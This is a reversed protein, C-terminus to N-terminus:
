FSIKFSFFALFGKCVIEHSVFLSRIFFQFCCSLQEGLFRAPIVTVIRTWFLFSYFVVACCGRICYGSWFFFFCQICKKYWVYIASVYILSSLLSLRDIIDPSTDPQWGKSWVHIHYTVRQSLLLMASAFLKIESLFSSQCLRWGCCWWHWDGVGIWELEVLGMDGMVYWSAQQYRWWGKINLTLLLAPTKLPSPIFVNCTSPYPSTSSFFRHMQWTLNWNSNMQLISFMVKTSVFSPVTAEGICAAMYGDVETEFATPYINMFCSMMDIQCILRILLIVALPILPFHSPSHFLLFCIYYILCICIIDQLIFLKWISM